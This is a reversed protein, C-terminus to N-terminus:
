DPAISEHCSTYNPDRNQERLIGVGYLYTQIRILSTSAFSVKKCHQLDPIKKGSWFKKWGLEADFFKLIEVCSITQLSESIHDQNNMGSGSGSKKVWGPDRIWPDFLCWIVSGSRCSQKKLKKEMKNLIRAPFRHRILGQQISKGLVCVPWELLNGVSGGVSWKEIGTLM